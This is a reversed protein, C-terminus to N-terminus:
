STVLNQALNKALNQALNQVLNKVLNRVLTQPGSFVNNLEVAPVYFVTYLGVPISVLYM